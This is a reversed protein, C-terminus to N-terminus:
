SSTFDLTQSQSRPYPTPHCSIASREFIISSRPDIACVRGKAISKDVRLLPLVSCSIEKEVTRKFQRVLRLM